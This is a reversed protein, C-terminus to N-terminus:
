EIQYDRMLKRAKILDDSRVMLRRPLIGISGELVSINADLEFVDIGAETLIANVYAIVTIDNTRLLEDM